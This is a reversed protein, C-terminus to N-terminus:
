SKKVWGTEERAWTEGRTRLVSVTVSKLGECKAGLTDLLGNTLLDGGGKLGQVMGEGPVGVIELVELNRDKHTLVSILESWGSELAVAFAFVKMRTSIDLIHGLEPLTLSVMTSDLMVLGHGDAILKEAIGRADTGSIPVVGVETGERDDEDETVDPASISLTLGILNNSILSGIDVSPITSLFQPDSHRYTYNVELFKLSPSLSRSLDVFFGSPAFVDLLHLERIETQFRVFGVADERSERTTGGFLQSYITVAKLDPLQKGLATLFGPPYGLAFLELTLSKISPPLEPTSFPRTLLDAYEELKIDSTLILSQLGASFAESPFVPLDFSQLPIQAARAQAPPVPTMSALAEAKSSLYQSSAM